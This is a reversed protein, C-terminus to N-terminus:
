STVVTVSSALYGMGRGNEVVSEGGLSCPFGARDSSIPGAGHNGALLVAKGDFLLRNSGVDALFYALGVVGVRNHLVRRVFEGAMRNHVVSLQARCPGPEDRLRLPGYDEDSTRVSIVVPALRPLGIPM